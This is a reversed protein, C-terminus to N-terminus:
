PHSPVANAAPMVLDLALDQWWKSQLNFFKIPGFWLHSHPSM